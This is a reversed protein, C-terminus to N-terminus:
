ENGKLPKEYHWCFEVGKMGHFTRYRDKCSCFSNLDDHKNLKEIESQAYLRMATMIKHKQM